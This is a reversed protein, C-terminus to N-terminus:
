MAPMFTGASIKARNWLIMPLSTTITEPDSMCPVGVVRFAASSPTEGSTM